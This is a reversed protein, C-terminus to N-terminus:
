AACHVASFGSSSPVSAEPMKMRGKKRNEAVALCSASLYSMAISARNTFTRSISMMPTAQAPKKM